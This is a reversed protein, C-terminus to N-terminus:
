RAWGPSGGARRLDDELTSLERQLQDIQAKKENIRNLLDQLERGGATNASYQERVARNPDQYYQTRALNYERQLVDLERTATAIKERQQAFKDRWCKEDCEDEAEEGPAAQGEAGAAAAAEGEGEEGPPPAVQGVTSIGVGKPINDNTFMPIQSLDKKARQARVRRAVEALSPQSGPEGAWGLTVGVSMAVILLLLRRM